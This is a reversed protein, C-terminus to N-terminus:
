LAYNRVHPRGPACNKKGPEPELGVGQPQYFLLGTHGIEECLGSGALQFGCLRDIDPLRTPIRGTRKPLREAVETHQVMVAIESYHRTITAGAQQMQEGGWAKFEAQPFQKKLEKILRGGHLDGSKEGALLFFRM